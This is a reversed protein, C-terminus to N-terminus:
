VTLLDDAADSTYLLCCKIYKASIVTVNKSFTHGVQKDDKFFSFNKDTVETLEKEKDGEEYKWGDFMYGKRSAGDTEPLFVEAKPNVWYISEKNYVDDERKVVVKVYTNPRAPETTKDVQRIVSPYYAAKITTVTNTFQRPGFPNTAGDDATWGKLFGGDKPEVTMEPITVEVKPNVYYRDRICM